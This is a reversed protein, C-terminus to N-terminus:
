GGSWAEGDQVHASDGRMCCLGLDVTANLAVVLKGVRFVLSFAVAAVAGRVAM